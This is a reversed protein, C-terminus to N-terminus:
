VTSLLPRLREATADIERYVASAERAAIMVNLRDVGLDRYAEANARDLPQRTTPTISNKM